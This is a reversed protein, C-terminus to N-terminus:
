DLEKLAEAVARMAEPWPNLAEEIRAMVRGFQPTRVIRTESIDLSHGTLRGLVNLSTAISAFMKAKKEPYTDEDHEVEDQLRRLQAMVRTAEEHVSMPADGASTAAPAAVPRVSPAFIVTGPVTPYEDWWAADISWREALRRRAASDPKKVGNLWFSVATQSRQAVEAIEVQTAGVRGLSVAGKSRKSAM